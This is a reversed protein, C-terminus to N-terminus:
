IALVIVLKFFYNNKAPWIGETYQNTKLIINILYYFRPVRQRRQTENHVGARM